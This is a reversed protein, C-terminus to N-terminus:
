PNTKPKWERAMRQAEAIQAETMRSATIDRHKVAQDHNSKEQSDKSGQPFAAAALEFWMYAQVDDQPVGEGKAYKFGVLLQCLAVGQEAAKRYWEAAAKADQPVGDGVAYMFGVYCQAWAEGKEALRTCAAAADSRDAGIKTNKCEQADSALTATASGIVMLAALAAVWMRMM